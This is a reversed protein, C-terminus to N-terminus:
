QGGVWGGDLWPGILHGHEESLMGHGRPASRNPHGHEESLIGHGQRVSRNIGMGRVAHWGGQHASRNIGMGRVAHGHWPAQPAIGPPHVEAAEAPRGMSGTGM